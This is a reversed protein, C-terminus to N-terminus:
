DSLSASRSVEEEQHQQQEEEERLSRFSDIRSTLLAILWCMADSPSRRDDIWESMWECKAVVGVEKAM